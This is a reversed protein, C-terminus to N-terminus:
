EDNSSNLDEVPITTASSSKGGRHRLRVGAGGGNEPIFQVGTQEFAEVIAKNNMTTLRADEGKSEYAGITSKSVGSREALTDQQWGLLSRAAKSLRPTLRFM